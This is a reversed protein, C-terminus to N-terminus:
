PRRDREMRQQRGILTVLSALHGAFLELLDDVALIGVLAGADDVVPVRRVGHTRMIELADDIADRERVTVLPRTVLDAAVLQALRDLAQVVGALVIDRDTLIGTPYSLGDRREVIVVDGVHHARMLSAVEHVTDTGRVVVVERTCVGGVDMKLM